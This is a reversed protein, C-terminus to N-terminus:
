GVDEGYDRDPHDTEGLRWYGRTVVHARPLAREQLLHRRIRRM